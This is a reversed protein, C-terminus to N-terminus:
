IKSPIFPSFNYCAPANREAQKQIINRSKVRKLMSNLLPFLNQLFILSSCEHANQKCPMRLSIPVYLFSHLPCRINRSCFHSLASLAETLSAQFPFHLGGGLTYCDGFLLM